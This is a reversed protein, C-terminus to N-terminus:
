QVSASDNTTFNMTRTFVLIDNGDLVAAPIRGYPAGMRVIRKAAEDLIPEGSSRGIDVRLLSGDPLLEMALVVRGYLKGRAAEPYNLNGIREVKVRWNELYLSEAWALTRPSLMKKRPLQNYENLHRAVEGELRAYTRSADVPAEGPTPTPTPQVTRSEAKSISNQSQKTQSLLQRQQAELEQVRRQSQELDAGSTQIPRPPLPTSARQPEKTNGGGDLNNQALAQAETPARASKANVLVIDLLKAPATIEKQNSFHLALLVGHVLVSLALAGTLLRPSAPTSPLIIEDATATSM